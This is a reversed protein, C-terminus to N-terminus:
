KVAVEASSSSKVAESDGNLSGEDDKTAASPPSSLAEKAQVKRQLKKLLESASTNLGFNPPQFAPLEPHLPPPASLGGGGLMSPWGFGFAGSMPPFVPMSASVAAAANPQLGRLMGPSPSIAEPSPSSQENPSRSLSTERGDESSGSKKDETSEPSSAQKESGSRKAKSERPKKHRLLHREKVKYELTSHPVGFYSGARHVSMEGRQVAKVAEVLLQSNYKRYQGRKPRTKKAPKQEEEDRKDEGNVEDRDTKLKKFAPPLSDDSSNLASCADDGKDGDAEPSISGSCSPPYAKDSQVKDSITKSIIDKLTGNMKTPPPGSREPSSPPQPSQRDSLGNPQSGFLRMPKYSPIKLEVSSSRSSCPSAIPEGLCIGGKNLPLPHSPEAFAKHSSLFAMMDAHYQLPNRSEFEMRQSAFKRVFDSVNFPLKFDYNLPDSGTFAKECERMYLSNFFIPPMGFPRDFGAHFDHKSRLQELRHEWDSALPQLAMPLHKFPDAYDGHAAMGQLLDSM